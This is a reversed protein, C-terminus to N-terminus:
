FQFIILIKGPSFKKFETFSFDYYRHLFNYIPHDRIANINRNGLDYATIGVEAGRDKSPYLLDTMRSGHDIALKKWETVPMVVFNKTMQTAVKPFM